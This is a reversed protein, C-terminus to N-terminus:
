SVLIADMPIPDNNILASFTGQKLYISIDHAKLGYGPQMVM